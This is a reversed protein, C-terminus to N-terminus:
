YRYNKWDFALWWYGEHAADEVVSNKPRFHDVNKDSMPNKSESYWCKGNTLTKLPQDLDRWIKQRAAQKLGQTIALKRASAVDEGAAVAAADAEQIEKRLEDLALQARVQWNHPLSLQEINVFRM